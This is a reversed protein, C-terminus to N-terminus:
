GLGTPATTMATLAAAIEGAATASWHHTLPRAAVCLAAVVTAVTRWGIHECARRVAEGLEGLEWRYTPVWM